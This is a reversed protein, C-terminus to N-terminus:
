RYVAIYTSKRRVGRCMRVVGQFTHFVERDKNELSLAIGHELRILSKSALIEVIKPPSGFVNPCGLSILTVWCIKPPNGFTANLCIVM